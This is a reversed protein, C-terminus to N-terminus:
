DVSGLASLASRLAEVVDPALAARCVVQGPPWPEPQNCALPRGDLRTAHLGAALAVGMPAASHCDYQGGSHVYADVDGTVVAM